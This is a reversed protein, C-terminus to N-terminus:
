TISPQVNAGIRNKTGALISTAKPSPGTQVEMLMPLELGLVEFTIV